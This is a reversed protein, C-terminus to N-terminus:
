EMMPLNMDIPVAIYVGCIIALVFYAMCSNEGCIAIHKGKLGMNVSGYGLSKIM